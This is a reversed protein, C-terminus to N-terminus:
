PLRLNRHDRPSAGRRHPLLRSPTSPLSPWRSEWRRRFSCRGPASPSIDRKRRESLHRSWLRCPGSSSLQSRRRSIAFRDTRTWYKSPFVCYKKLFDGTLIFTSISVVCSPSPILKGCIPWHIKKWSTQWSPSPFSTLFVRLPFGIRRLIFFFLRNRPTHVREYYGWSTSLDFPSSRQESSSSNRFSLKWSFPFGASNPERTRHPVRWCWIFNNVKKNNKTHYRIQYNTLSNVLLQQQQSNKRYAYMYFLSSNEKRSYFNKTPENTIHFFNFSNKELM